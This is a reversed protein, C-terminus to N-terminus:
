SEIMMMVVVMVVVVMMADAATAADVMMKVLTSWDSPQMCLQVSLLPLLM